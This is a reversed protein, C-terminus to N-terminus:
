AAFKRAEWDPECNTRIMLKIPSLARLGAELRGRGQRPVKVAELIDEALKVEAPSASGITGGLSIDQGDVM